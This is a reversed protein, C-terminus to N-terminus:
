GRLLAEAIAIDLESNIDIAEREDVVVAYAPEAVVSSGALLSATRTVWVTGSEAYLPERAQRRRAAAPDLLEYRGDGDIRGWNERSEAVTLVSGADREAALRVCRDITAATRFPATPELTVTWEYDGGHQGIAHRLADETPSDDRALEQPRRVVEVGAALAAAAIEDDDTSVVLRDLTEADLAIRVARAVLTEGGLEILNKRPVTRSGGRAPVVGLATM